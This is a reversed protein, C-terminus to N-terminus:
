VSTAEAAYEDNINADFVVVPVVDEVGTSLAAVEARPNTLRRPVAEKMQSESLSPVEVHIYENNGNLFLTMEVYEGALRSRSGTILRGAMSFDRELVAASAPMSLLVRSVRAMNPYLARGEGAWFSLLVSLPYDKPKTSKFREQFRDFEQQCVERLTRKCPGTNDSDGDGESDDGFLGSDHVRQAHRVLRRSVQAQQFVHDRRLRAAGRGADGGGGGHEGDPRGGEDPHAQRCPGSGRPHQLVEAAVQSRAPLPEHM